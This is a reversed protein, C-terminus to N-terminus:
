LKIFVFLKGILLKVTLVWRNKMLAPQTHNSWIQNVTAQCCLCVVECSDDCKSIIRVLSLNICQLVKFCYSSCMCFFMCYGFSNYSQCFIIYIRTLPLTSYIYWMQKYSVLVNPVKSTFPLHYTKQLKIAYEEIIQQLVESIKCMFTYDYFSEQPEPLKLGSFYDLNDWNLNPSKLFLFGSNCGQSLREQFIHTPWTDFNECLFAIM